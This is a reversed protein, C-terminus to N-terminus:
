GLLPTAGLTAFFDATVAIGPIREQNGIGTLTFSWQTLDYVAVHEFSQQHSRSALFDAIGFTSTEGSSEKLYARMLREPEPFSLPRLLVADVVSFIATNAGIGLAIALVAVITFGPAIAFARLGYRLDQILTDM